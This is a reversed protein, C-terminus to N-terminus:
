VKRGDDPVSKLDSAMAVAEQPIWQAACTPCVPCPRQRVAVIHHCAPCRRISRAGDFIEHEWLTRVANGLGARSPTQASRRAARYPVLSASANSAPGHGPEHNWWLASYGVEDPLGSLAARLTARETRGQDPGFMACQSLLQILSADDHADHEAILLHTLVSFDCGLELLGAAQTRGFGSPPSKPDGGPATIRRKLECGALWDFHPRGNRWPGVLVDIDGPKSCWPLGLERPVIELATWVAEAPAFFRRASAAAHLCILDLEGGGQALLGVLEQESYASLGKSVGPGLSGSGGYVVSGQALPPITAARRMIAPLSRRAHADEEVFGHFTTAILTELNGKGLTV